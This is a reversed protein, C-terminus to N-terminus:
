AAYGVRKEFSGLTVQRGTGAGALIRGAPLFRYGQLIGYFADAWDKREGPQEAEAIAGAVRRWSDEITQETGSGSAPKFRYKMDWIDRSIPDFPPRSASEM